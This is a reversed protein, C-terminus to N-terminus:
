RSGFFDFQIIRNFKSGDVPVGITVGGGVNRGSGGVSIGVGGRNPTDYEESSIDIFFDPDSSLSLGKSSMIDDFANLLRNEDLDNLGTEMNSYYNYSNFKSFDVAKDYDMTVRIPNCSYMLILALLIFLYRM